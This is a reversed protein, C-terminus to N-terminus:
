TPCKPVGATAGLDREAPNSTIRDKEAIGLQTKLRRHSIRISLECSCIANGKSKLIVTHLNPNSPRIRIVPSKSADTTADM